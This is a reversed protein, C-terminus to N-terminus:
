GARGRARAACAERYLEAAKALGGHVAKAAAAAVVLGLGMRAALEISPKSFSAITPIPKQVPRPTIWIDDFTYYKGQHSIPGEPGYGPSSRSARPSSRTTRRSIPASRGTNAGTTAAAPRSISRGGSLVDLTAWQEAVRIPPAAAARDGDALRINTTRAAVYTLMVEPSSNVGLTSFHHEGIWASADRSRRCPDGTPSRISSNTRRAPTTRIPNDSLTFYGFEM